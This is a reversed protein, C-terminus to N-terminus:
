KRIIYVLKSKNWDSVLYKREPEYKEVYEILTLKEVKLKNKSIWKDDALLTDFRPDDRDFNFVRNYDTGCYVICEGQSELDYFIKSALRKVTRTKNYKTEREDIWSRFKDNNKYLHRPLYFITNILKDFSKKIFKKLKYMTYNM